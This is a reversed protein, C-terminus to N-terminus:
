TFPSILKDQDRSSKNLNLCMFRALYTQKQGCFGTNHMRLIRAVYSVRFTCVPLMEQVNTGHAGRMKTGWVKRGTVEAWTVDKKLNGLKKSNRLIGPMVRNSLDGLLPTALPRLRVKTLPYQHTGESFPLASFVVTQKFSVARAKNPRDHTLGLIGSVMIWMWM